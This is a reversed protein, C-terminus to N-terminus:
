QNQAFIKVQNALKLSAFAPYRLTALSAALPEYDRALRRFGAAWALSLEVVWCRPFLVFGSRGEAHTVVELQAGHKEADVATNESTYSQEVYALKVNQGTSEEM